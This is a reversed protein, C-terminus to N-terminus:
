ANISEVLELMADSLERRTIWTDNAVRWAIGLKTNIGPYAIHSDTEVHRKAPEFKALPIRLREFRWKLNQLSEKQEPLFDSDERARQDLSRILEYAGLVWLYSMTIHDGLDGFPSSATGQQVLFEDEKVLKADLKGIGQVTVIIFHDFSALKHSVDVWRKNRDTDFSNSCELLKKIQEATLRNLM